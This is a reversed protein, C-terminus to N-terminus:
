VSYQRLYKVAVKFDKPWPATLTVAAKTVPHEFTLQEAHIATRALLPREERGPKLRYDTKLRSLWLPKGGYREDGAIKLGVHAAHVLIQHLRDTVPRCALLAYGSRPFAEIVDFITRAAKGERFDARMLGPTVPHPALKVTVEFHTEAPEGRVLALFKQERRDSGFLNAIQILVPKTKALLLIGSTEGDLRHANCLYTLARERVWPKGAAICAHLLGMLSPREVEVRDPSTLLGAPKDLVLLHEDEFLVPIEWFERTAPASLKIVESV